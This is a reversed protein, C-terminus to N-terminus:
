RDKLVDHLDGTRFATEKQQRVARGYRNPTSSLFHAALVLPWSDATQWLSTM